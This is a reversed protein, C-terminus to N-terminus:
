SIDTGEIHDVTDIFNHTNSLDVIGPPDVISSLNVDQLEVSDPLDVSCSLALVLLDVSGPSYVTGPYTLM